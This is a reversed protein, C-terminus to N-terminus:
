EQSTSFDKVDGMFTTTEMSSSDIDNCNITFAFSQQSKYPATFVTCFVCLVSCPAIRHLMFAM